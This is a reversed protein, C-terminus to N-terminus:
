GHVVGVDGCECVWVSVCECVSVGEYLGNRGWFGADVNVGASKGEEGEM